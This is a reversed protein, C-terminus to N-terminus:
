DGAGLGWVYQLVSLAVIAAADARLTRPGLTVPLCGARISRAVEDGEWGGEPGVLLTAAEPAGAPPWAGNGSGAAAPEVLMLAVGQLGASLCAQLSCPALVPPVVARGCQKASAVAVRRWRELRRGRTFAAEPVDTRATLLPQIAAVGMMVGDRIVDDIKDGKLVAQALTVRVRWEPAADVPEGTEAVVAARDVSTVRADVERGRGDFLRVAQGAKVRLVRRLHGAEDEPLTVTRVRPDLSPVYLRPVM